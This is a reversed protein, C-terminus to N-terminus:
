GIQRSSNGKSNPLVLIDEVQFYLKEAIDYLIINLSANARAYRVNDNVM